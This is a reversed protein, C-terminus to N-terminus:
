LAEELSRVEIRESRAGSAAWLTQAALREPDSRFADYAAEDAFGLLHFEQKDDLTRVRCEVRGGHKAVLALVIAEYREFAELDAGVLDITVLLRM